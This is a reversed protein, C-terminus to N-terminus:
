TYEGYFVTLQKSPPTVEEITTTAPSAEFSAQNMEGRFDTIRKETERTIQHIEPLTMRSLCNMWPNFNDRM